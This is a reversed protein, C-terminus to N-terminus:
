ACALWTSCRQLASKPCCDRRLLCSDRRNAFGRPGCSSSALGCRQGVLGEVDHCATTLVRIRHSSGRLRSTRAPAVSDLSTAFFLGLVGVRVVRSRSLTPVRLYRCVPSVLSCLLEFLLERLPHGLVTDVLFFLCSIFNKSSNLVNHFISTSLFTAFEAYLSLTDM